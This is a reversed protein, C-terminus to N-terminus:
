SGVYEGERERGEGGFFLLSFFVSRTPCCEVNGPLLVKKSKFYFLVLFFFIVCCSELFFFYKM